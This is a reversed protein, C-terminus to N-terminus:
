MKNARKKGGLIMLSIVVAPILVSISCLYLAYELSFKNNLFGLIPGLAFFLVRILLSRLSLVTARQSSDTNQNIYNKLIPHATGRVFFLFLMPIFAIYSLDISIILFGLSLFVSLYALSWKLGLLKDIRKASLSGLAVMLNIAVWAYGFYKEELNVEKFILQALWAMSLSAFGAIASFYIFNRLIKNKRFSVNVIQLIDQFGVKRGNGQTSPEILFLSAIFAVFALITQLVFYNRYFSFVVVSVFIGALAEAVNGLATIRGEVKLYGNEQGGEKLSDYLLATDAGSLLSAGIGLLIEAVLFGTFTYSVSYAGFGLTGIFAGIVLAKKRGWVDAIYGSPVEFIAIVGSYIAHLLLYHEELGNEMYFLFSIPM